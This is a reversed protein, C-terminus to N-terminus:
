EPTVMLGARRFMYDLPLSMVAWKPLVPVAYQRLARRTRRSLPQHRPIDAVPTAGPWRTGHGTGTVNGTRTQNTRKM